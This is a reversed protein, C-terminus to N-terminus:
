SAVGPIIDGYQSTVDYRRGGEGTGKCNTCPKGRRDSGIGRCGPCELARTLQELSIRLDRMESQDTWDAATALARVRMELSGMLKEIAQRETAIADGLDPKKRNKMQTRRNTNM